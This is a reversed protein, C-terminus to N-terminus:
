PPGRERLTRRTAARNAPGDSESRPRSQSPASPPPTPPAQDTRPRVPQRPPLRRSQAPPYNATILATFEVRLLEPDACILETFASRTAAPGVDVSGTHAPTPYNNMENVERHEM